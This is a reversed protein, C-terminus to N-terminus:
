VLGGSHLTVALVSATFTQVSRKLTVDTEAVYRNKILIWCNLWTASRHLSWTLLIKRLLHLRILSLSFLPFNEVKYTSSFFFPRFWISFLLSPFTKNLVPNKKRPTEQHFSCPCLSVVARIWFMTRQRCSLRRLCMRLWSKGSSRNSFFGKWSPSCTSLFASRYKM